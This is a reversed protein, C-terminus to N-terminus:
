SLPGCVPPKKRVPKRVLLRTNWANITKKHKNCTGGVEYIYKKIGMVIELVQTTILQETVTFLTSRSTIREVIDSSSYL